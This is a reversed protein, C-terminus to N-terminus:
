RFLGLLGRRFSEWATILGKAKVAWSPVVGMVDGSSLLGGEKWLEESDESNGRNDGLVFIQGEGLTVEPFDPTASAYREILPVYEEGAIRRYVVGDECYLSDGAKGILRKIIIRKDTQPDRPVNEFLRYATVDVIVIDGREAEVDIQEYLYDGGTYSGTAGDYEGGYLTERMSPGLVQVVRFNILFYCEFFFLAVLLSCAIVLACNGKVDRRNLMEPRKM